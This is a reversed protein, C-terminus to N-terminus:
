AADVWLLIYTLLMAQWGSTVGGTVTLSVFPTPLVATGFWSSRRLGRCRKCARGIRVTLPIVAILIVFQANEDDFFGNVHTPLPWSKVIADVIYLKEPSSTGSFPIQLAERVASHMGDCGFLWDCVLIIDTDDANLRVKIPGTLEHQTYSNRVRDFTVGRMLQGGMQLFVDRLCNETQEQPLAIPHHKHTNETDFQSSCILSGNAHFSIGDLLIGSELLREVIGCEYKDLATLTESNVLIAKSFGLQAEHKEVILVSKGAKVLGVGLTLGSPGAGVILCDVHEPVIMTNAM